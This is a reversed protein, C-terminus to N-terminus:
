ARLIEMTDINWETCIIVTEAWIEKLKKEKTPDNQLTILTKSLMANLIHGVENVSNM